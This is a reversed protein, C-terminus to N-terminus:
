EAVKPYYVVGDEAEPQDLQPLAQRRVKAILQEVEQYPQRGLLGVIKNVEDITLKLDIM